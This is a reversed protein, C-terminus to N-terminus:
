SDARQDNNNSQIQKQTWGVRKRKQTRIRHCCACVLDCKAIEAEVVNWSACRAVLAGVEAHKNTAKHDFDMCCAPFLRECDCCPTTEKLSKVKDSLAQRKPGLYGPNKLRYDRQYQVGYTPDLSKRKKYFRRSREAGSGTGKVGQM